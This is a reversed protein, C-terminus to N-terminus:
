FSDPLPQKGRQEAAGRRCPARGGRAWGARAASTGAARGAGGHSQQGQAAAGSPDLPRRRRGPLRCRMLGGAPGAKAESRPMQRAFVHASVRGRMLVQPTVVPLGAPSQPEAQGLLADIKELDVAGDKHFLDEYCRLGFNTVAQM